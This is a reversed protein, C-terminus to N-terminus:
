PLRAVPGAVPGDNTSLLPHTPPALSLFGKAFVFWSYLCFHCRMRITLSPQGCLFGSLLLFGFTGSAVIIIEFDIWYENIHEWKLQCIAHLWIQNRPAYLTHTRKMPCHSAVFVFTLSFHLFFGMSTRTDCPCCTTDFINREGLGESTM